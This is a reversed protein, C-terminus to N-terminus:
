LWTFVASVVGWIQEHCRMIFLDTERVMTSFVCYFAVLVARHSSTDNNENEPGAENGSLVQHESLVKEFQLLAFSSRFVILLRGQKHAECPPIFTINAYEPDPDLRQPESLYVAVDSTYPPLRVQWGLSIKYHNQEYVVETRGCAGQFWEDWIGKDPKAQSWSDSLRPMPRAAEYAHFGNLRTPKAFENSM